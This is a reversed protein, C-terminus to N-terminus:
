CDIHLLFILHVLIKGTLLFSVIITLVKTDENNMINGYQLDNHCFRICQCEGTFENELAAIEKEMSDLCFERAEDSSCLSKASKLWNRPFIFTLLVNTENV